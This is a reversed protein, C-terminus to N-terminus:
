SQGYLESRVGATWSASDRPSLAGARLHDFMAVMKVIENPAEITRGAEYGEAYGVSPQGDFDFVTAPGSIGPCDPVSFPYILVHIYPRAALEVLHEIQARMVEDTGFKTRFAAEGIVFWCSPPHERAFIRQREMRADLEREVEEDSAEPLAARIIARAYDEAQLLGTFCRPDWNHMRTCTEEFQVYPTFWPPHAARAIDAHLRRFTQPTQLAKDCAQAFEATPMRDMTEVSSVHSGSYGM